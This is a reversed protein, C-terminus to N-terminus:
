EEDEMPKFVSTDSHEKMKKMGMVYLVIVYPIFLLLLWGVEVMLIFDYVGHLLIPILLARALYPGKIETYMHAIGLYYGMTIGFIAHAPVATLARTLATQMGGDMVYLVNEVGAFGLSVFVAYVIGDFKENFSPSKWVLLYLALFKFLEETSGAVVFAHYAASAVKSSQPMLNMLMREVFIVPIVIFIGLLLAKILMGVPEKDYKDRFYIYFLIILVPALSALLVAM